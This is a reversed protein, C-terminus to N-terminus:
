DHLANVAKGSFGTKIGQVTGECCSVVMQSKLELSDPARKWDRHASCEHPAPLVGISM